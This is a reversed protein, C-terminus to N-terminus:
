MPFERNLELHFGAPRDAPSEAPSRTMRRGNLPVRTVDRASRRAIDEAPQIM